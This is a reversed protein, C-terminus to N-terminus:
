SAKKQMEELLFDKAKNTLVRIYARTRAEESGPAPSGKPRAYIEHMVERIIEHESVHIRNDAAVKRAIFFMRLARDVDKEIEKPAKGRGSHSQKESKVLSEPVDFQYTEILKDELQKRMEYQAQEEEQRILDKEVAQYLDEVNQVGAKKALADDLEPLTAEHISLVTIKCNTPIFDEEKVDEDRESMGEASEGKKLGVVLKRMWDGMEGKKVQFRIGEAIMDGKKELNEINLDVYDGNKVKRDGAEKWDAHHLRIQEITSDIQKKTVKKPKVEKVKLKKPDITPVQPTSEFQIIVLSGKERDARKLQPKQIGDESMPYIATLKTSEQFSTQILIDKWEREVYKSYNQVIVADPAKGKRFGPMSVQKNIAKIAKLYAANSAKPSVEVELKVQCGPYKYVDVSINDNKFEKTEQPEKTETNM